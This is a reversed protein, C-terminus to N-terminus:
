PQCIAPTEIEVKDVEQKSEAVAAFVQPGCAICPKRVSNENRAEEKVDLYIPGHGSRFRRLRAVIPKWLEIVLVVAIFSLVLSVVLMDAYVRVRHYHLTKGHSFCPIWIYSERSAKTEWEVITAEPEWDETSARTEERVISSDAFPSKNTWHHALSTIYSSKTRRPSGKPPSAAGDSSLSSQSNGLRVRQAKPAKKGSVKSPTRISTKVPLKIRPEQRLTSHFSDARSPVKDLAMSVPAAIACSSFTLFYLAAILQM